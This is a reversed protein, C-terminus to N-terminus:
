CTSNLFRTYLVARGQSIIKVDSQGLCQDGADASLFLLSIPIEGYGTKRHLKIVM